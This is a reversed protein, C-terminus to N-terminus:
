IFLILMNIFKILYIFLFYKKLFIYINRIDIEGNNLSKTFKSNGVFVIFGEKLKPVYSPKSEEIPYFVTINFVQTSDNKDLRTYGITIGVFYGSSIKEKYESIYLITSLQAPM